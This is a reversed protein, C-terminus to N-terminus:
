GSSWSSSPHISPHPRPHSPSPRPLHCPARVLVGDLTQQDAANRVVALQLGLGECHAKANEWQLPGPDPSMLTTSLVYTTTSGPRLPSPPSTPPIPPTRPPAPYTPPAPPSLPSCLYASMTDCGVDYWRWNDPRYQPAPSSWAHILGVRRPVPLPLMPRVLAMCDENGVDVPQHTGWAQFSTPIPAGDVWRWTGEHTSDSAGVWVFPATEGALLSALAGQDHENRVIALQQGGLAACRGVAGSWTEPGTHFSYSLTPPSPPFPVSPGTFFLSM